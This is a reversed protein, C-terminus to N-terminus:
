GFAHLEGDRLELVTNGIVTLSIPSGTYGPREVPVRGTEAGTAPDLVTLAGTTPLLLKGAMLAPSGLAGGATWLPDFTSGNLAIVSNGTFVLYASGIRTTTATQSLPASLQHMVVPNGNGDYVALRPPLSEAAPFYLVIRSDSVALVRAEASDTGPGTLVHSGYEEPVTNDKPAPNLVTLREAPDAPCRELVALRSSSSSSSLLTCGKRPQTKVNVPADVFGYEVTRVLDSRWMELRQPGQALLYTGDVSLRVDKDMYSSRATRRAGSDGALMTAQSCGREDRYVAIVMGYQGEVGCLPMDRRYKWLQEGTRPDRGTVTDDDGTVAVGGSVLARASARDPAHWLERLATPLQDAAAPTPVTSSATVSETGHADGRVWVLAGAVAVLVAIAVASIIDARTRREPALM